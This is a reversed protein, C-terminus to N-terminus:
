AGRGRRRRGRARRMSLALKEKAAIAAPPVLSIGIRRARSPQKLAEGPRAQFDTDHAVDSEEAAPRGNSYYYLAMSKRTMGPPCTLPEPHGHYSLSTTTFVVCRNFVPLIRAECRTMDRNWLELHGGYEERWDRNLYLILNLRRDLRLQEHRNFDAHVKLLGGPEIQHLGGGLYHPDPILGSIATLDELFSTFTSSNFQALLHRTM